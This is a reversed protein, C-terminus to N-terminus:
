WDLAGADTGDSAASRGTQGAVLYYNADFTQGWFNHDATTVGPDGDQLDYAAGRLATEGANDRVLLTSHDAARINAYAKVFTNHLISGTAIPSAIWICGADGFQSFINRQVLFRQPGPEHDGINVGTGGSGLQSAGIFVNDEVTCDNANYSLYVQQSYLGQGVGGTMHCNRVTMHHTSLSADGIWIVGSSGPTFLELTLGDIVWYSVGTNFHMFASFGTGSGHFVPTEGPYARVTIPQSATGSSSNVTALSTDAYTGGRCWLTDGAAAGSVFRAVTRWPSALTGAGTTDSGTPSIFKGTVPPAVGGGMHMILSSPM